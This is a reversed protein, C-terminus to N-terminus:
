KIMPIDNAGDGISVTLMKPHYLHCYKVVLSKENPFLRCAVVVKSHFCLHFLEAHFNYKICSRLFEADM